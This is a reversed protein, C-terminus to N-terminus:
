PLTQVGSKAQWFENRHAITRMNWNEEMPMGEDYLNLIFCGKQNALNPNTLDLGEGSLTVVNPALKQYEVLALEAGEAEPLLETWPAPHHFASQRNGVRKEGCYGRCTLTGEPEYGTLRVIQESHASLTHYPNDRFALASVILGSRTKAIASKNRFEYKKHEKGKSIYEM